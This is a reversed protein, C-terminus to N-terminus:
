SVVFDKNDEIRKQLDARRRRLRDLSIKYEHVGKEDMKIDKALSRM